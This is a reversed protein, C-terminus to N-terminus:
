TLFTGLITELCLNANLHKKKIDENIQDFYVTFNFIIPIHISTQAM